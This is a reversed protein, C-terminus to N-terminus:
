CFLIVFLKYINYTKLREVINIKRKEKGKKKREEKRRLGEKKRRGNNGIRNRKNRKSM